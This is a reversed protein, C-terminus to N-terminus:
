VSSLTLVSTHDVPEVSFEVDSAAEEMLSGKASWGSTTEGVGLLRAEGLVCEIILRHCINADM